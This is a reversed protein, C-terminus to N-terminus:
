LRAPYGGFAPRSCTAAIYQALRWLDLDLPASRRLRVRIHCFLFPDFEIAQPTVRLGDIVCVLCFTLALRSPPRTGLRLPSWTGQGLRSSPRPGPGNSHERGRSRRAECDADSHGARDMCRGRLRYDPVNENRDESWTESLVRHMCSSRLFKPERRGSCIPLRGTASRCVFISSTAIFRAMTREAAMKRAAPALAIAASLGPAELRDGPRSICFEVDDLVLPSTSVLVFPAESNLGPSRICSL